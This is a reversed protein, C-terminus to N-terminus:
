KLIRIQTGNCGIDNWARVKVADDGSGPVSAGKRSTTAHKGFAATNGYETKKGFEKQIQSPRSAGGPRMEHLLLSQTIATEEFGCSKFRPMRRPGYFPCVADDSPYETTLSWFSRESEITVKECKKRYTKGYFKQSCAQAGLLSLAFIFIAGHFAAEQEGIRGLIL